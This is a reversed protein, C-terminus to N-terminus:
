TFIYFVPLINIPPVILCHFVCFNQSRILPALVRSWEDIYSTLSVKSASSYDDRHVSLVARYFAGDTTDRPICNVYQNMATWQGLGWAAAAAMRSMRERDSELFSSWKQSAVDNM